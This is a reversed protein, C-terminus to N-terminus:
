WGGIAYASMAFATFGTWMGLAYFTRKILPSQERRLLLLAAVVVFGAAPLIHLLTLLKHAAFTADIAATRSSAAAPLSVLAATRRIVVAIAILVSVTFSAVLWAPRTGSSEQGSHKM